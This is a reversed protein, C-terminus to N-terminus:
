AHTLSHTCARMHTRTQARARARADTCARVHTDRIAAVRARTGTQAVARVRTYVHEHARNRRVVTISLVSDECGKLVGNSNFANGVDVNGALGALSGDLLAACGSYTVVHYRHCVDTDPNGPPICLSGLGSHHIFKCPVRAKNQM